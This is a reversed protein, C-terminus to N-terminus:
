NKIELAEKLYKESKKREEELLKEAETFDINYTEKLKENYDNFNISRSELNM